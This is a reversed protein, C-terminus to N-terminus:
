RPCPRGLKAGQELPPVLDRLASLKKGLLLLAPEEPVAEMREPDTLFDASTSGWGGQFGRAEELASHGGKGM